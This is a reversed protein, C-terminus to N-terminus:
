HNLNLELFHGFQTAQQRDAMTQTKRTKVRVQQLSRARLESRRGDGVEQCCDDGTNVLALFLSQSVVQLFHDLEAHLEDNPVFGCHKATVAEQRRVTIDNSSNSRRRLNTWRVEAINRERNRAM